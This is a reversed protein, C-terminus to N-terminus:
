GTSAGPWSTGARVSGVPRALGLTPRSAARAWGPVLAGPIPADRGPKSRKCSLPTSCPAVWRVM